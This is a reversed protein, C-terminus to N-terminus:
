LGLSIIFPYRSEQLAGPSQATSSFLRRVLSAIIGVWILDVFLDLRSRMKPINDTSREEADDETRGSERSNRSSFSSRSRTTAPSMGLGDESDLSEYHLARPRRFLQAHRFARSEVVRDDNLDTRHRRASNIFQRREPESYKPSLPSLLPSTSGPEEDRSGPPQFAVRKGQPLQSTEAAPEDDAM